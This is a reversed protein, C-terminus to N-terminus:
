KEQLPHCPVHSAPNAILLRGIKDHAFEEVAKRLRKKVATATMGLEAATEKCTSYGLFVNSLLAASEEDVAQLPNDPIEALTLAEDPRAAITDELAIHHTRGESRVVPTNLSTPFRNSYALEVEDLRDCEIDLADIIESRTVQRGLAASLKREVKSKQIHLDQLNQPIRIVAGKDRLYQLVKGRITPVAFTSFKLGQTPNFREVSAILGLFAVQELDEYSETTTKAISHAVTRALGLNLEVLKNRLTTNPKRYYALFVNLM